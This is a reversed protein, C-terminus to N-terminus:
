KTKNQLYPYFVIAALIIVPLIIVLNFFTLDNSHYTRFLYTSVPMFFALSILIILNNIRYPIRYQKQNFFYSFIFHFFYSIITALAAGMMGYQPILFLNLSINIIGAIIFAVSVLFTKNKFLVGLTQFQAIGLFFFSPIVIPLVKLGEAFKPNSPIIAGLYYLIANGFFIIIILANSYLYFYKRFIEKADKLKYVDWKYPGWGLRFSNIILVNVLIAFKYGYSYLGLEEEGAYNKLIIRDAINMIMAAINGPIMPLGFSLLKKIYNRDISFSLEKILLPSFGLFISINSIIFAYIIGKYGFGYHVIFLINLLVTLLFASITLIIYKGPKHKYRLVLLNYRFIQKILAGILYIVFLLAITNNDFIYQKLFIALLLIILSISINAIICNFLAKRRIAESEKYGYKFFATQLGGGTILILFSSITIIYELNGYDAPTLYATYLPLLFFGILRQIIPDLSYIISENLTRKLISPM